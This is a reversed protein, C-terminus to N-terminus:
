IGASRGAAVGARQFAPTNARCGWVNFGGCGAWGDGVAPRCSSAAARSGRAPLGAGCVPWPAERQLEGGPHPPTPPNGAPDGGPPKDALLEPPKMGPSIAGCPGGAGPCPRGSAVRSISTPGPGADRASSVPGLGGAHAPGPVERTGATEAQKWTQATAGTPRSWRCGGRLM